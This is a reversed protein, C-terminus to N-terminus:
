TKKAKKTQSTQQEASETWNPQSLFSRLKEFETQIDAFLTESGELEDKRGKTELDLLMDSIKRAAVHRALGKLKHAHIKVNKSDKVEIAEALLEITQPAEELFIKVTEKLIEEDEYIKKIIEYDVPLENYQEDVPKAPATESSETESCLQSLQKVDSKATDIRWSIDKSGESLYKTLAHLLKLHEIPKSIYENCGAAFCKEDDGKMAYATLAIIPTKLGEKRIAKTAEYGNMNPMEIDMFILDFQKSLAKQVAQKGDEVITVKLGLRKLLSKILVQNTRADEAVLINGTFEVQKAEDDDNDTEIHSTINQRDLFPQKTVDVDAPIILSFVSGKGVESTMTLQGGLLEALRKSIALGLGTGGFERSTSNDAQVFTDFIADQKEQSIGIGTDEVDFRIFSANEIEQISVRLYIHGERTFKIANGVLNILCQRVRSVDTHIQAPLRGEEIIKLNLGEIKAKPMMLSEVSNLLQGLSCEAIDVDVKKAEIKSLDLIDDILRLLNHSSDKVHNLHEKQEDTLESEALLNTFGIIANMPTRIEHSMTALFQSKATNAMSTQTMAEQLAQETNKRKTIDQIALVVHRNGDIYAPEAGVELWPNVEKGDILLAAQVEVGRTAQWSGLVGKFTDRILCASCFPSHGCENTHESVHICGLGEGPRKNIIESFDRHVLKALVDNVRKVLGQDNVLMMGLPAADFIAELNKQKRDLIEYLQKRETIDEGSGLIATIKGQEDRLVTNHWSIVREEGSKTLIPNEYYETLKVEGSLLKNFVAKTNERNQEPIFSDFWNRGIIEDEQYGLIQCGKKNIISLRQDATIVVFMVGAVNFYTQAKDREKRLKISEAMLAQEANRRKTIEQRLQENIATLEATRERVRTELNDKAEVLASDRKQIQELMKNFAWVLHGIEDNSLHSVRLSYDKKESVSTAIKALSLIPTSIVKQLNSSLFYAIVLVILLTIGAVIIDRSLRSHIESMDDRLYIIGIMEGDLEIKKFVSLSGDEFYHCDKKPQPPQIKEPIDIRQYQAFIRDQKDYICAFVTSNKAKVASLIHEADEEDSFALAAKCNDGIIDAHTNLDCVLQQRADIQGWIIFVSIGLFLIVASALMIIATLKQRISMNRLKVTIM